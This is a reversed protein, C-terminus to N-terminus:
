RMLVPLLMFQQVPLLEGVVVVQVAEAVVSAEAKPRVQVEVVLPQRLQNSLLLPVLLVGPVIASPISWLAM